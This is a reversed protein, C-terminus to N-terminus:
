AALMDRLREALVKAEPEPAVKRLAKEYDPMLRGLEARTSCRELRLTFVFARLGLASVVTENMFSKAERFRSLEDVTIGPATALIPNGHPAGNGNVAGSGNVPAHGNGHAHGNVTAGNMPTVADNSSEAAAPAAAMPAPAMPVAMAGGVPAIYGDAALLELFDAQVGVRLGQERLAEVPKSPDTLILMTRLKGRLNNRRAMIEDVGKDTKAYRATDMM